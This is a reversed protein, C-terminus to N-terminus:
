TTFIVVPILLGFMMIPVLVSILLLVLFTLGILEPIDTFKNLLTLVGLTVMLM